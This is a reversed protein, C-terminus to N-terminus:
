DFLCKLFVFATDNLDANMSCRVLRLSKHVLRIKGAVPAALITVAGIEESANDGNCAGNSADASALSCGGLLSARPIHHRWSAEPSSCKGFAVLGLSEEITLAMDFWPPWCEGSLM